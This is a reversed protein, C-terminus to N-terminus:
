HWTLVPYAGVARDKAFYCRRWSARAFRAVHERFRAWLLDISASGASEEESLIGAKSACLLKLHKM